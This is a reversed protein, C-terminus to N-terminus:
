KMYFMQTLEVVVPSNDNNTISVDKMYNWWKKMVPHDALKTGDYDDPLGQIAFLTNTEGDLWISYECIGFDSLLEKLEPWIERHRREYEQQTGPKIKMKFAFLKM